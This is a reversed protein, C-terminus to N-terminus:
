CIVLDYGVILIHIFLCKLFSDYIWMYIQTSLYWDMHIYVVIYISVYIYIYIYIYIKKDIRIIQIQEFLWRITTINQTVHKRVWSMQKRRHTTHSTHMTHISNRLMHFLDSGRSRKRYRSYAARRYEHKGHLLQKYRNAEYNCKM